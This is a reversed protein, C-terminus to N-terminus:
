DTTVKLGFSNLQGIMYERTKALETSGPPRPGIAIQKKVHELAREGNFAVAGPVVAPLATPQTRTSSGARVNEVKDNNPCAAFLFPALLALALIWGRRNILSQSYRSLTSQMLLNQKESETM